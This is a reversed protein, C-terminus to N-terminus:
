ARVAAPVQALEDETLPRVDLNFIYGEEGQILGDVFPWITGMRYRMLYWADKDVDLGGFPYSTPDALYWGPV